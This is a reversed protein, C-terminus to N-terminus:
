PSGFLLMAFNGKEPYWKCVDSYNARIATDYKYRVADKEEETECAEMERRKAKLDAGLRNITKMRKNYERTNIRGLDKLLQTSSKKDAILQPAEKDAWTKKSEYLAQRQDETKIGKESPPEGKKRIMGNAEAKTAGPHKDLYRELRRRYAPSWESPDKKRGM